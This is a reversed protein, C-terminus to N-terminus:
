LRACSARSFVCLPGTTKQQTRERHKDRAQRASIKPNYYLIARTRVQSLVEQGLGRFMPLNFLLKGYLFFSIDTSLSPPLFRCKISNERHKDRAQRPLIICKIYLHSFFHRKECRDIAVSAAGVPDTTRMIGYSMCGCVCLRCLSLSNLVTCIITCMYM